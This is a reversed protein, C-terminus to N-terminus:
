YIKYDISTDDVLSKDIDRHPAEGDAVNVIYYGLLTFPSM